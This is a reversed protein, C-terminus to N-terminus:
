KSKNKEAKVREMDGRSEGPTMVLEIVLTLHSCLCKFIVGQISVSMSLGNLEPFQNASQMDM